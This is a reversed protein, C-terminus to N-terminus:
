DCCYSLLMAHRLRMARAISPQKAAVQSGRPTEGPPQGQDHLSSANLYFAFSHLQLMVPYAQRSGQWARVRPHGARQREGSLNATCETSRVARGICPQVATVQSARATGSFSGICLAEQEGGYQCLVNEWACSLLRRQSGKLNSVQFSFAPSNRLGPAPAPFLWLTRTTM